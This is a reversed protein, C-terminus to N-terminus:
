RSMTASSIPAGSGRVTMRLPRSVSTSAPGSSAPAPRLLARRFIAAGSSRAASARAAHGQSADQIERAGVHGADTRWRVMRRAGVVRLMRWARWSGGPLGARVVCHHVHRFVGSEHRGEDDDSKSPEGPGARRVSYRRQEGAHDRRLRGNPRTTSAPSPPMTPMFSVHARAACNGSASPASSPDTRSPLPPTMVRWSGSGGYREQPVLIVRNRGVDGCMRRRTRRVARLAPLHPPVGRQPGRVRRRSQARTGGRTKASIGAYM